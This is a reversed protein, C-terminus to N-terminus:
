DVGHRVLEMATPVLKRGVQSPGTIVSVTPQVSSQILRDYLNSILCQYSIMYM